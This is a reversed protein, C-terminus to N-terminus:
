ESCVSRGRVRRYGYFGTGALAYGALAMSAAIILYGVLVQLIVTEPAVVPTHGELWRLAVGGVRPTTAYVPAMVLNNTMAMAAVLPARPLRSFRRMIFAALAMDIVPVPITSILLGAAFATALLGAPAEAQVIEQWHYRLESRTRNALNAFIRNLQSFSKRKM